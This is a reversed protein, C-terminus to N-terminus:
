PAFAMYANIRETVFREKYLKEDFFYNDRKKRNGHAVSLRQCSM